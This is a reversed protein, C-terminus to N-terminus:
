ALRFRNVVEYRAGSPALHSRYLYLRDVRMRRAFATTDAVIASLDAEPKLRSLTLHAAFPRQEPDLGAAVVAHEIKAALAGLSDAGDTIGLWLVRARSPKPFAGLRDFAVEFASGLDARALERVVRELVEADTDGLFRMTVHWNEWPVVRGPLARGAVSRELHGRLALRIEDSLPV